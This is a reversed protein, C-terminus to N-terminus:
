ELRTLFGAPRELRVKLAKLFEAGMAGDVIRHDASLGVRAVKRVTLRGDRLSLEERTKGVTLLGSQPPNLIATFFLIEYRALSSITFTGRELEELRLGGSRAREVLEARLRALRGLGLKDAKPIAPVILGQPVAVALGVNIEPAVLIQEGELRANLLPFDRLTLATAKIILDNISLKVGEKELVFPQLEEKVQELRDMEADCFLHIHPATQASQSMRRAIAKRMPDMPMSRPQPQPAEPSEGAGAMDRAARIVDELMIRERTGAKSLAELPLGLAEALKKAVPSVRLRDGPVANEAGQLDRLLVVGGPGSGKLKGLDLGQAKAKWRAAPVAPVIPGQM